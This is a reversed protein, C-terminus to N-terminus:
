AGAVLPSAELWKALLPALPMVRVKSPGGRAGAEAALWGAVAGVSDTCAFSDLACDAAHLKSVFSRVQPTAARM